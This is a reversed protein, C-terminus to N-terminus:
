SIRKSNIAINWTDKGCVDCHHVPAPQLTVANGCFSCAYIGATKIEKFQANYERPRIPLGYRVAEDEYYFVSIEGSTELWAQEVQGLHSISMVRLESFFEDQAMGEKRFDNICFRGQEIVCVPKGEILTELKKSKAILHTTLRYLGLMMMFVVICSVIGVEKYFMPDGAASGLTLIIVLEFVSLQKIGRKGMLRLAVLVVVFMIFSRLMIELLFHAEENGFLMAQLDPLQITQAQLM